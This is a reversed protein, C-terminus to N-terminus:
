QSSPPLSDKANIVTKEFFATGEYGILSGLVFAGFFDEVTLSLSIVAMISLLCSGILKILLRASFQISDSETFVRALSVIIGGAVSGFVISQIPPKIDFATSVVQSRINGALEYQM